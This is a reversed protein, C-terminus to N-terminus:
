VEGSGKPSSAVEVRNRGREKAAYMAEDARELVEDLTWQGASSAAGLSATVRIPEGRPVAYVAGAIARRLREAAVRAGAETTQTLAVVFEEGGWRAVYDSKRALKHLVGAVGQLVADGAVHGHSDNVNKFHDIDLVIISVPFGHRDSRNREREMIEVFARRNMLGTLPDTSAVRKTALVLTMMRVPGPLEHALIQMLRTDDRSPGRPGPALAIQGVQSSFFSVPEVIPMSTAGELAREDAVCVLESRPPLNLAVRAEDEAAVRGSPHCHLYCVGPDPLELAFWRYATVDACLRILDSFLREPEGDNGALSRVEGSIVAEYLAADLLQSLREHVDGTLQLQPRSAPSFDVARKGEALSHIVEILHDIQTKTVYAVAGASRAWFRAKRSDTASLLVVPVHATAPEAKLLRCLQVGSIGPMWLDTVVVTPPDAIAREAAAVADAVDEVVFGHARLREGLLSRVSPSDDALVVRIM